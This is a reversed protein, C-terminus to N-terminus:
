IQGTEWEGIGQPAGNHTNVERNEAAPGCSEGEAGLQSTAPSVRATVRAAQAVAACGQPSGHPPEASEAQIPRTRDHPGESPAPCVCPLGTIPDVWPQVLDPFADALEEWTPLLGRPSPLPAGIVYAAPRGKEGANQNVLFGKDAAARLHRGANSPHLGIRDAVARVSAQPQGDAECMARVAEVAQRQRESVADNSALDFARGVTAFAMGYDAVTAIIKGQGARRRQRQHLLASAEVVALLTDFDRSLRPAMADVPLREALWRGFPVVVQRAATLVTM